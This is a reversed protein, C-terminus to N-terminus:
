FIREPVSVVDGPRLRVNTSLDRGSLIRDLRVSIPPEGQRYIKAGRANAFENLGGAELVVDMLTMGNKFPVSQPANVAGTVRVRTQYDGGAVATVTVTVIPERIYDSLLKTIQQAVDEPLAGGVSVDGAIPITIKGDPRVSVNASADAHGYVNVMLADGVGIRYADAFVYDTSESRAGDQSSTGPAACGAGAGVVVIGLILYRKALNRSHASSNKLM